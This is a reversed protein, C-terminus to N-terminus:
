DGSEEALRQVLPVASPHLQFGSARVYSVASDYAARLLPAVDDAVLGEDRLERTLRGLPRTFANLKGDQDYGCIEMVTNRDVSGDHDAAWRIVAARENFGEIELRLLMERLAEANWDGLSTDAATPAAVADETEEEVSRLRDVREIEAISGMPLEVRLIKAGRTTFDRPTLMFLRTGARQRLEEILEQRPACPQNNEKRWWDEKKDGTVLLVDCKRREAERLVQEWVYFDGVAAQGKKEDMYGPPVKAKIREAGREALEKRESLEFPVGIRGALLNALEDIVPAGDDNSQEASTHKSLLQGLGEIAGAFGDTLKGTIEDLDEDPLAFGEAWELVIKAAAEHQKGLAVKAQETTRGPAQLANRKQHWFEDLVRNPVWLRDELKGFLALLTGRAQETYRYLDLLVNTDPVVIGYRMVTEYDAEGWQRFTEFGDYISRQGDQGPSPNGGGNSAVGDSVQDM